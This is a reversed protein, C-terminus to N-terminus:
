GAQRAFFADVADADDLTVTSARPSREGTEPNAPFVVHSWASDTLGSLHGLRVM